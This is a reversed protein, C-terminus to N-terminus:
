SEERAVDPRASRAARYERALPETRQDYARFRAIIRKATPVSVRWMSACTKLPAGAKRYLYLEWEDARSLAPPRGCKSGTGRQVNREREMEELVAAASKNVSRVPM